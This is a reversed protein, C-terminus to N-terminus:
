SGLPLHAVVVKDRGAQKAAYLAQDAARLVEESTKGHVPVEAVGISVTITPLSINQYLITKNKITERITELRPLVKSINADPLIIVFEEGGYRCAIDSGRLTKNLYKGIFKLVEDGAEHGFTDNLKKFFDLDLMAVCLTRKERLAHKLDRALTEDLFRRNFLNTLPDHIAERQLRQNLNNKELSLKIINSFTTIKQELYNTFDVEKEFNLNLMGITNNNVILPICIFIGEPVFTYHQCILENHSKNVTYQNGSRFAWCNISPFVSQLIQVDGWYLVLEQNDYSNTITLGGNIHPFLSKAAEKIAAYTESSNQCLQLSENIQNILTMDKEHQKLLRNKQHLKKNSVFIDEVLLLNEHQLSLAKSLLKCARIAIVTMYILYSVMSLGLLNYEIGNQIFLWVSLPLIMLYIFSLSATMNPQLSQIGGASIGAIFTIIVTQVIQNDHPMLFSGLIGWCLASLSSGVVFLILHLEIYKPYMKYSVKVLARLFSLTVISIYWQKFYSIDSNHFAMFLFTSLLFVSILGINLNDFLLSLKEVFVKERIQKLNSTSDSSPQIHESEDTM